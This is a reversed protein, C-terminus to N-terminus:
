SLCKSFEDMFRKMSPHSQATIIRGDVIVHPEFPKENDIKAGRLRLEEELDYPLSYNSQAHKGGHGSVPQQQQQEKRRTHAAPGKTTQAEGAVNAGSGTKPTHHPTEHSSHLTGGSEEEEQRTYCTM